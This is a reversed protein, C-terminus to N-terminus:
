SLEQVWLTCSMAPVHLDSEVLRQAGHKPIHFREEDALQQWGGLQTVTEDLRIVTASFTPNIAFLLRVSGHTLNTNYLLTLSKGDVGHFSTFFGEEPRSYLRLLKGLHGKRFDIWETFYAHTSLYKELRGYDLANIDGRLYTNNIGYKSRLFDQGSSLMPIGLSMFLVAAMLHTRRVDNATPSYGNFDPNETIGDIWTRDDHSETYNVTQAPWKAFYWPSGKLYYELSESKGLTLVYEKLFNRYGDNWSSWPTDRLAGAIHGRFSWPEAILVVDPKTKQLAKAIDCLVDVGLLEALDFRFGDIAYTNILHICSDIILRKAMASRARLDNGCGSWNMLHGARDVTAYYIRDIRLLHEPVGVHNYVVDLIVAIGRKHFAEVLCQFEQIGSAKSPDLSLTSSPSFYNTTMYGWHYEEQTVSDCQQVPQLEVCNVGLNSLYFHPAEVVKTLGTFGRREAETAVVPAKAALDRVHAEAIILDQWHPTKYHKPKSICEPAIVIGPGERSVCALAYPDLVKADPDFAGAGDRVGDLLYWYRWGHMNQYITIEWVCPVEDGVKLRQLHYEYVQSRSTESTCLTVASARPAFLRFVTEQGQVHAGMPLDSKLEYFFDGLALPRPGTSGEIEILPLSSLEFAKSATFQWMQRGLRDPLIARNHNGSPDLTINPAYDPVPLWIHEATVFKFSQIGSYLFRDAKGRWRLVRVGDIVDPDLRWIPNGIAQNWQNFEGAVYVPDHSAGFDSGHSLPYIFNFEQEEEDYYYGYLSGVLGRPALEVALTTATEPILGIVPPKSQIWDRDFEVIGVRSSELWAGIFHPTEFAM